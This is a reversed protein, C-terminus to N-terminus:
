QLPKATLRNIVGRLIQNSLAGNYSCGGFVYIFPCEWQTVPTTARSSVTPTAIQLGKPILPTTIENWHTTAVYYTQDVLVAQANKGIHIGEPLQMLDSAKTWHVGYDNSIYVEDSTRGSNTVGGFALLVSQKTVRWYESTKFTFYPVIIPGDINPLPVLSIAVWQIGDYAWTQGTVSGDAKQGGAIIMMPSDSWETTYVIAPSTGSVPCDTDATSETTAPYTLHIYTQGDARVGVATDGVTGYIHSMTTGTASWTTGMDTSEYLRDNGDLIYIRSSGATLTEMRAGIPFVISEKTWTDTDPNDTIARCVDNGSQTFCIVNNGYGITHQADVATFLTPLTSSALRSWAMSDPNIKHVNVYITYDRQYEGNASELHLKVSGRSFNISDTSSTLYNVVTDVGQDNPMTIEAKKVTPLGISVQLRNVRTGMPLSDANYIVARELDISFFISDLSSLVSDNALLSFSNVMVANVSSDTIEFDTDDDENCGAAFTTM